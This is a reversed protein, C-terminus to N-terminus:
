WRFSFASQKAKICIYTSPTEVPFTLSTVCSSQPVEKELLRRECNAPERSESSLAHHVVGLALDGVLLKEARQLAPAERADGSIKESSCSPM